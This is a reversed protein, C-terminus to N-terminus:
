VTIPLHSQLSRLPLAVPIPDAETSKALKGSLADFAAFPAVEDNPRPEAFTNPRIM